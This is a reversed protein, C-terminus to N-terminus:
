RKLHIDLFNVWMREFRDIDIFEPGRPGGHEAEPVVWLLKEGPLKEFVAESMSVPTRVDKGGVILFTPKKFHPAVHIPYLEEPYDLPKKLQRNDTAWRPHNALFDDFSTMLARGVFCKVHDNTHAAAMSLYAGTSFGYLAINEPDVEKMQAVHNIVAHYDTLFETYCLFDQDMPFPSSQGFGRWDFTVVNYGHAVLIRAYVVSGGMNEADGDSVIVTPLPQDTITEYPRSLPHEYFYALLSREEIIEQAPFFWAKIKYGDPTEIDMEKYIMAANEPRYHYVSDPKLALASQVILSVLFIALTIKKKM